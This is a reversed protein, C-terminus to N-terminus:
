DMQIDLESDDSLFPSAQIDQYWKNTLETVTSKGEKLEQQTFKRIFFPRFFKMDLLM